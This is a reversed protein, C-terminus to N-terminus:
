VIADRTEDAIQLKGIIKEMAETEPIATYQMKMLDGVKATISVYVTNEPLLKNAILADIFQESMMLKAPM